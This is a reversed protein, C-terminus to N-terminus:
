NRGARTSSGEEASTIDDAAENPKRGAEALPGGFVQDTVACPSRSVGIRDAPLSMNWTLQPRRDDDKVHVM